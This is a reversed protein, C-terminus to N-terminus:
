QKVVAFKRLRQVAQQTPKLYIENGIVMRELFNNIVLYRLGVYMAFPDSILISEPLDIEEEYDPEPLEKGFFSKVKNVFLEREKEYDDKKQSNRSRIKKASDIEKQSAFISEEFDELNVAVWHKENVSFEVLRAMFEEAETSSFTDELKYRTFVLDSPQFDVDEYTVRLNKM